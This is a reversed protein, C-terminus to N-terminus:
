TRMGWRRMRRTRVALMAAVRRRLGMDAWAKEARSQAADILAQVGRMWAGFPRQSAHHQFVVTDFVLVGSRYSLFRPRMIRACMRAALEACKELEKPDTPVRVWAEAAKNPRRANRAAMQGDTLEDRSPALGFAVLVTELAHWALFQHGRHTSPVGFRAALADMGYARLVERGPNFFVDRGRQFNVAVVADRLPKSDFADYVGLVGYELGCCFDLVVACVPQNRPWAWLVDLADAHIASGGDERVARANGSCRDIAILNAYPVGKRTAVERDLDDPGALYLIVESRERGNTRALVENWVTRRWNNKVGVKYNRHSGNSM